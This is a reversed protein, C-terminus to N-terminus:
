PNFFGKITNLPRIPPPPPRPPRQHAGNGLSDGDGGCALPRRAHLRDCAVHSSLRVPPGCHASRCAPRGAGHPGLEALRSYVVANRKLMKEVIARKHAPTMRDRDLPDLPAWRRIYDDTYMEKPAEEGTSEERAAKADGDQPAETAM